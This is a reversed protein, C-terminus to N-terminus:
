AAKLWTQKLNFLIVQVNRTDSRTGNAELTNLEAIAECGTKKMLKALTKDKLLHLAFTPRGKEVTPANEMTVQVSVLSHDTKVGVTKIEWERSRSFTDRSVYIRDLRSCVAAARSGRHFIYQRETPNTQRWGDVLMLGLELKLADLDSLLTDPEAVPLRDLAEEVNNFDGAMICPKPTEPHHEYYHKLKQFFRRREEIGDPTPVYICLINISDDGRGKLSIQMARGPIIETHTVQRMDVQNKNLVIAVGERRTPADPHESFLIKIRGKFMKTVDRQREATLHTEQLLLVGIARQKMMSYM